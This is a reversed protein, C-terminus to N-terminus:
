STPATELPVGAALLAVGVPGTRWDKDYMGIFIRRNSATKRRSDQTSAAADSTTVSEPIAVRVILQDFRVLGIRRRRVEQIDSWAATWGYTFGKIRTIGDDTVSLSRFRIAPGLILAMVAGSFFADSWHGRILNTTAALAGLVVSPLLVVPWRPSLLTRM